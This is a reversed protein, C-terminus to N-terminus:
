SHLIGFTSFTSKKIKQDFGDFTRDRFFTGVMWVILLIKYDCVRPGARELASEIVNMRCRYRVTDM